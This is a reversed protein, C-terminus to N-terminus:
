SEPFAQLLVGDKTIKVCQVENREFDPDCLPADIAPCRYLSPELTQCKSLDFQTIAQKQAGTEPPPTSTSCGAVLAVSAAAMLLRLCRISRKRPGGMRKM